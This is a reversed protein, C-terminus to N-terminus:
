PLSAFCAVWLDLVDNLVKSMMNLSGELATYEIEDSAFRGTAQMNQVALLATNLPVRVEHFIYSSFRKKSDAARSERVQAKQTARYQVKLRDRMTYLRREAVERTYHIWLVFVTYILYNLLFRIWTKKYRIVSGVLVANLITTYTAMLRTQGLAFLAIPPYASIYFLIGLFDKSGCDFVMEKKDYYGCLQLLILSYAYWSWVVLSMFSQYIRPYIKPWDFVIMIPLPILLCPSVAWYFIKDAIVISSKPILICILVWNIILFFSGALALAKMQYYTEKKYHREAARDYFETFFFQNFLSSMRFRLASIFTVFAMLGRHSHVSDHDAHTGHTGSTGSRQRTGGHESHQTLSRAEGDPFFTNDVVIEDVEEDNVEPSNKENATAPLSQDDKKDSTGNSETIELLSESVNSGGGLRRKFRSWHVRVGTDITADDFTATKKNIVNSPETTTRSPRRGAVAPPPLEPDGSRPRKLSLM